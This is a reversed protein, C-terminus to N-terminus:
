LFAPRNQVANVFFVTLAIYGALDALFLLVAAGLTM